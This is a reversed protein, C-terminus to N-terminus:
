YSFIWSMSIYIDYEWMNGCIKGVGGLKKLDGDTVRESWTVRKPRVESVRAASAGGLRHAIRWGISRRSRLNKQRCIDIHRYM